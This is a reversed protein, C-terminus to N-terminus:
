IRIMLLKMGHILKVLKDDSYSLGPFLRELTWWIRIVHERGDSLPPRITLVFGPEILNEPTELFKASLPAVVDEIQDAGQQTPGRIQDVMLINITPEPPMWRRVYNGLHLTM